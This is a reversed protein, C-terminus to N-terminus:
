SFAILHLQTLGKAFEKLETPDIEDALAAWQSFHCPALDILRDLLNQGAPEFMATRVEDDDAYYLASVPPNEDEDLYKKSKLYSWSVAPNVHITLEDNEGLQDLLEVAVTVLEQFRIHKSRNARAQHEVEYRARQCAVTDQQELTLNQTEELWELMADCEETSGEYSRVQKSDAFQMALEEFNEFDEDESVFPMLRILVDIRKDYNGDIFMEVHKAEYKKGLYPLVDDTRNQAIARAVKQIMDRYQMEAAEPSLPKPKETVDNETTEKEPSNM